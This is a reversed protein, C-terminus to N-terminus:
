QICKFFNQYYEETGICDFKIHVRRKLLQDISNAINNILESDRKLIVAQDNMYEPIGGSNTTIVPTGCAMAEVMTLGAPEEWMSPLVAIDSLQFIEHVKNQPIYGTFLVKNSLTQSLTYLNNQYDNIVKSNHIYSGVILLTIDKRNLILLAKLIKDIGKEESLRGVFSIVKDNQSINHKERLKNVDTESCLPKFISKDICNYLIKVKKKPIPGIPNNKSCIQNAVYQSVCLFSTCNKFIKKCGAHIRPINHLHYYYDGSYRSLRISWALPINNELVIKDYHEKKIVISSVIIYYILSFISKYSIAKRRFINKMTWFFVNDLKKIIEPPSVWIFHVNPYQKSAKEADIDYFSIIDMEFLQKKNNEDVLHEVLTSVAGGRTAPVPYGGNSDATLIGVKM